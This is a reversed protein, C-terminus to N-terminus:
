GVESVDFTLLKYDFDPSFSGGTIQGDGFQIKSRSPRYIVTQSSSVSILVENIVVLSQIQLRDAYITYAGDTFSAGPATVSLVVHSHLTGSFTLTKANQYTVTILNWKGGKFTGDVGFISVGDRINGPTLNSDGAVKVAGTTYSKAAVATKATAAPTVTKGAVSKITGTIKGNPGYATKGSLIDAAKATADSTDTGTEISEIEAVFNPAPIPDGTGKKKRIADAIGTLFETLTAM